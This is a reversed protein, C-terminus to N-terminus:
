RILFFLFFNCFTIQLLIGLISCENVFGASKDTPAELWRGYTYLLDLIVGLFLKKIKPKSHKKIKKVRVMRGDSGLRFTMNVAM